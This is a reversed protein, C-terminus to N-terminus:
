TELDRNGLRCFLAPRGPMGNLQQIFPLTRPVASAAGAPSKELQM